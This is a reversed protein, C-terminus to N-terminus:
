ESNQSVFELVGEAILVKIQYMYIFPLRTLLHKKDRSNSYELISKIQSANLSKCYNLVDNLALKITKPLRFGELVFKIPEIELEDVGCDIDTIWLMSVKRLVKGETSTSYSPLFLERFVTQKSVVLMKDALEANKIQLHSIRKKRALLTKVYIDGRLQTQWRLYYLEREYEFTKRANESVAKESLYRSLQMELLKDPSLTSSVPPIIESDVKFTKLISYTRPYHINVFSQQFERQNTFSFNLDSKQPNALERYPLYFLTSTQQEISFKLAALDFDTNAGIRDNLIEFIKVAKRVYQKDPYVVHAALYLEALDRLDKGDSNKPLQLKDLFSSTSTRGIQAYLIGAIGHEIGYNFVPADLASANGDETLKIYDSLKEAGNVLRRNDEWLQEKLHFSHDNVYAFCRDAVETFFTQRFYSGLLDLVYGIGASGHGFSCLPRRVMTFPAHWALGQNIMWARSLIKRALQNVISLLAQEGTKDYLYITVLLMGARGTFLGESVQDSELYYDTRQQLIESARLLYYDEETLDFLQIYLYILGAGGNRFAMRHPATQHLDTVKQLRSRIQSLHENEQTHSLTRILSALAM